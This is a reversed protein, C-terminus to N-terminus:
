EPIIPFPVAIPLSGFWKLEPLSEKLTFLFRVAITMM